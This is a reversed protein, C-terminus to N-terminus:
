FILADPDVDVGIAISGCLGCSFGILVRLEIQRFGRSVDADRDVGQSHYQRAKRRLFHM